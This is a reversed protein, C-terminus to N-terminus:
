DPYLDPYLKKACKPCIGHSFGDAPQVVQSFEITIWDGHADRIRGCSACIIALRSWGAVTKPSNHPVITNGEDNGVDIPCREEEGFWEWFPDSGFPDPPAGPKEIVLNDESANLELFLDQPISCTTDEGNQDNDAVPTIKWAVDGYGADSFQRSARLNWADDLQELPVLASFKVYRKEGDESPFSIWCLKDVTTLGLKELLPTVISEVDQRSVGM